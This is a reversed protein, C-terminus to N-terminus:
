MGGPCEAAGEQGAGPQDEDVTKVIRKKRKRSTATRSGIGVRFGAQGYVTAKYEKTTETAHLYQHEFIGKVMEATINGKRYWSDIEGPTARLFGRTRWTIIAYELSAIWLEVMTAHMYEQEGVSLMRNADGREIDDKQPIGMMLAVRRSDLSITSDDGEEVKGGVWKWLSSLYAKPSSDKRKGIAESCKKFYDERWYIMIPHECRLFLHAQTEENRSCLPCLADFIPDGKRINRGHLKKDCVHQLAELKSCPMWNRKGWVSELFWLVSLDWRYNSESIKTREALYEEMVHKM